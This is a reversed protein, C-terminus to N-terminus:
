LKLEGRHWLLPWKNGDEDFQKFMDLHGSKFLLSIRDAMFPNVERVLRVQKTLHHKELHDFIKSAHHLFEDEEESIIPNHTSFPERVPSPFLTSEHDVHICKCTFGQQLPDVTVDMLRFIHCHHYFYHKTDDSYLDILKRLNPQLFYLTIMRIGRLVYARAKRLEAILPNWANFAIDKDLHVYPNAFSTVLSSYSPAGM